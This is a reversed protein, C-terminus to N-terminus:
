TKPYYKRLKKQYGRRLRWLTDGIPNLNDEEYVEIVKNVLEDLGIGKSAITPIIPIKLREELKKIDLKYKKMKLIDIM